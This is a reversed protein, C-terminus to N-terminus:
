DPESAVNQPGPQPNRTGVQDRKVLVKAPGNSVVVRGTNYDAHRPRDRRLEARFRLQRSHKRLRTHM